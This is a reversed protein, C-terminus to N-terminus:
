YKNRQERKVEMVCFIVYVIFFSNSYIPNGSMGYVLMLLQVYIKLPDKQKIAAVLNYAFFIIYIAAGIIGHDYLLQLYINHLGADYILYASGTGMGIVNNQLTEMSRRWIESRGTTIDGDTPDFRQFFMHVVANQNNLVYLVTGCLFFLLIMKAFTNATVRKWVLYAIISAVLLAVAVGRKSTLFICFISLLMMFFRLIKEHLVKEKYQAKDFLMFGFFTACFYAADATYASFGAYAGDTNYSWELREFCDARLVAKLFSNMTEGLFFQIVIGGLVVFSFFFIMRKLKCLLDGDQALAILFLLTVATLIAERSGKEYNNTYFLGLVSVSTIFGMLIMQTSIYIESNTILILTFLTFAIYLFVTSSFPYALQYCFVYIILSIMAPYAIVGNKIKQASNTKM